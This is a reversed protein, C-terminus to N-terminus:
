HEPRMEDAGLVSVAPDTIDKALPGLWQEVYRTAQGIDQAQLYTDHARTLCKVYDAYVKQKKILAEFSHTDPHCSADKISLVAYCLARAIRGNGDGFPHIWNLRWLAFAGLHIPDRLSWNSNVYRCMDDVLAAVSAWNPPVHASSGIAMSNKRYEGPNPLLGEMSIRHLTRIQAPEINFIVKNAKANMILLDVARCLKHLNAEMIDTPGTRNPTLEIWRREAEKAEVNRDQAILARSLTLWADAHNPGFSVASRCADEAESWRRLAVLAYGLENWAIIDDPKIALANRCAIVAEDWRELENLAYGLHGWADSYDPKLTVAKRSAQECEAWCCLVILACALNDWAEPFDQKLGVAKEFSARAEEPRKLNLLTCGRNHHAMAFDPELEVAREFSTLAEDPRDLELLAKGLNNHAAAVRANLGIAKEILEVARATHQIQLAIVGLHHLAGFHSPRRGLVERYIREAEALNGQRHLALAQEFKDQLSGTAQPHADGQEPM